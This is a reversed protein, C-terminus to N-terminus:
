EYDDDDYYFCADDDDDDCCCCCCCCCYYYYYYYYYYCYYCHHHHYWWWWWCCRYRHCHHFSYRMSHTVVHHRLDFQTATRGMLSASDLELPMAVTWSVSADEDDNENSAEAELTTLQAGFSAFTGRCVEGDRICYMLQALAVSYFGLDRLLPRRKLHLPTSSALACAGPILTFAIMGSGIIAGIGLNAEDGSESRTYIAKITSVANVIIEPAASGFAM